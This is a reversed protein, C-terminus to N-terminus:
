KARLKREIKTVDAIPVVTVTENGYLVAHHSTIMVLGVERLVGEKLSVDRKFGSTDRNWHGVTSGILTVTAVLAFINVLLHKANVRTIDKFSGVFIYSQICVAIVCLHILIPLMYKPEDSRYETWLAVTLSISWLVGGFIAPVGRRKTDASINSAVSWVFGAFGSVVGVGVLGVKLVDSYEVLWILRWDFVSVYAYMFVAAALTAVVFVLASILAFHESLFTLTNVRHNIMIAGLTEDTDKM